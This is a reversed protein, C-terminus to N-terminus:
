AQISAKKKLGKRAKIERDVCREPSVGDRLVFRVKWGQGYCWGILEALDRATYESANDAGLMFEGGIRRDSSELMLGVDDNDRDKYHCIVVISIHEREVYDGIYADFDRILKNGSYDAM